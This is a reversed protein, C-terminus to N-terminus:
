TVVTFSVVYSFLTGPAAPDRPLLPRHEQSRHRRPHQHNGEKKDRAIGNQFLSPPLTFMPYQSVSESHHFPDCYATHQSTQVHVVVSM